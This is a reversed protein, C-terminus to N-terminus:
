QWDDDPDKSFLGGIAEIALITCGVCFIIMYIGAEKLGRGIKKIGALTLRPLAVVLAFLFFISWFWKEVRASLPINRSGFGVLKAM